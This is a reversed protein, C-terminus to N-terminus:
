GIDFFNKETRIVFILAELMSLLHDIGWIQHGRDNFGLTYIM